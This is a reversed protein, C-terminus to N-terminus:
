ERVLRMKPPGDDDDEDDEDDAILGARREALWQLQTLLRMLLRQVNIADDAPLDPRPTIDFTTSGRHAREHLADMAATLADPRDQAPPGIGRRRERERKRRECDVHRDVLTAALVALAREADIEGEDLERRIVDEDSEAERMAAM